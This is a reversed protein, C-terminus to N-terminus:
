SQSRPLFSRPVAVIPAQRMKKDIQTTVTTSVSVLQDHEEKSKTATDSELVGHDTPNNFSLDGGGGPYETVELFTKISEQDLNPIDADHKTVNFNPPDMSATRMSTDAKQTSLDSTVSSSSKMKSHQRPQNKSAVLNEKASFTSVPVNKELAFDCGKLNGIIELHTNANRSDFKDFMFVGSTDLLASNSKKNSGRRCSTNTIASKNNKEMGSFSSSGDVSIASIFSADSSEPYGGDSKSSRVIKHTARHGKQVMPYSPLSTASQELTGPLNTSNDKVFNKCKLKAESTDLPLTHKGSKKVRVIEYQTRTQLEV